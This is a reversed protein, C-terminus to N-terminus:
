KIDGITADPAPTDPNLAATAEIAPSPAVAAEAQRLFWPKFNIVKGPYIFYIVVAMIFLIGDIFLADHSSVGKHKM